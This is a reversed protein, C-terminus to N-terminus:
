KSNQTITKKFQEITMSQEWTAYFLQCLANALDTHDVVMSILNFDNVSLSKLSVMAKQEDALLMKLPLKKTIKVEEGISAYYEIMVLFEEAYDYEAEFIAMVRTGDELIRRLPASARKIEDLDRMFGTAYPKKNFSLLNERSTKMIDDFRQVQAPRSSLIEIFDLSSKDTKKADFKQQLETSLAQLREMEKQKEAVMLQMAKQPEIAVYKKVKGPFVTCLGKDELSKLVNYIKGQPISSSTAVEVASLVNHEVLALYARAQYDSFGIKLLESKM